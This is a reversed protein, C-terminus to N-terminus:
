KYKVLTVTFNTSGETGVENKYFITTGSFILNPATKGDNATVFALSTTDNYEASPTDFQGQSATLNYNQIFKASRVSSIDTLGARTRVKLGYAM